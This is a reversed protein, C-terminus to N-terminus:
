GITPCTIVKTNEPVVPTTRRAVYDHRAHAQRSAKAEAIAPTKIKAAATTGDSSDDTANQM